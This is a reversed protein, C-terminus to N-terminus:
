FSHLLKRQLWLHALLINTRDLRAQRCTVYHKSTPPLLQENNGEWVSVRQTGRLVFFVVLCVFLWLLSQKFEHRGFFVFEVWASWVDSVPFISASIMEGTCSQAWVILPQNNLRIIHAHFLLSGCFDILYRILCLGEPSPSFQNTKETLSMLFWVFEQM